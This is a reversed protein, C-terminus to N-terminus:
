TRRQKAMTKKAKTSNAKMLKMPIKTLLIFIVSKTLTVVMLCNVLHPQQGTDKVSVAQRASAGHRWHHINRFQQFFGSTMFATTLAYWQYPFLYVILESVNIILLKM